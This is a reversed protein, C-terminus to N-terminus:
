EEFDYESSRDKKGGGFKMIFSFGFQLGMTPGNDKIFFFEGSNNPTINADAKKFEYGTYNYGLYLGVGQMRHENAYLFVSLGLSATVGSKEMIDRSAFQTSDQLGNNLNTFLAYAYGIKVEPTFVWRENTNLVIDYGVHLRASKLHLKLNRTQMEQYINRPIFSQFYSYDTFLGLRLKPTVEYNYNLGAAIIGRFAKRQAENSVLYPVRASAGLTFRPRKVPINYQANSVGTFLVFLLSYILFRKM